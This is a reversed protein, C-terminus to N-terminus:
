SVRNYLTKESKQCIKNINFFLPQERGATGARIAAVFSPEMIVGMGKRGDVKLIVSQLNAAHVVDTKENVKPRSVLWPWDMQNGEVDNVNFYPIGLANATLSTLRFGKEIDEGETISDGLCVMKIMNHDEASGGDNAQCVTM